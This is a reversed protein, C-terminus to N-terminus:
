ALRNEMLLNETMAATGSSIPQWWPVGRWQLKTKWQKFKDNRAM